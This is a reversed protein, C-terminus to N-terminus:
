LAYVVRADVQLARYIALRQAESALEVVLTVAQYRGGQSARVTPPEVPAVGAAREVLAQVHATFDEAATGFVKLPYRAPYQLPSRADGGDPPSM